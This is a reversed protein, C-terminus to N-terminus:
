EWEVEISYRARLAQLAEHQRHTRREQLVRQQVRRRVEPLPPTRRSERAELWVLHLGYTSRVPGFWTHVPATEIADTFGPGFIRELEATTADIEKGRIFPDGRDGAAAAANSQLDTLLAAADAAAARGRRDESLYIHKLRIRAHAAFEGAHDALYTELDAETPVDDPGLWATALRMMDVLHRRVVLDSRELGLRRAEQELAGRAAGTEEGVFGALRVLRERVAADARDYGRAIAERYLVEEDIADRVLGETAVRTPPAGHEVTWAERLRAVDPATIVIRPRAAEAPDWWSRLTVLVGGILLFHLLPARLVRAM